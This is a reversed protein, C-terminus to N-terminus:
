ESESTERGPRGALEALRAFTAEIVARRGVKYEEDPEFLDIEADYIRMAGSRWAAVKDPDPLHDCPLKEAVAILIEVTPMVAGDLAEFGPQFRFGAVEDVPEGALTRDVIREWRAVMDALFERPDDGDFNGADWTGM